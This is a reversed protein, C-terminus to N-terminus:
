TTAPAQEPAQEPAREPARKPAQKLEREVEQLLQFLRPEMGYETGDGIAGDGDDGGDLATAIEDVSELNLKRLINLPPSGKIQSAQLMVGSCLLSEALSRYEDYSKNPLTSLGELLGELLGNIRSEDLKKVLEDLRTAVPIVFDPHQVTRSLKQLSIKVFWTLVSRYKSFCALCSKLDNIAETPSVEGDQEFRNSFSQLTRVIKMANTAKKHISEIPQLLKLGVRYSPAFNFSRPLQRIVNKRKMANERMLFAHNMYLLFAHADELLDVFEREIDKVPQSNREDVVSVDVIGHMATEFQDSWNPTSDVDFYQIFESHLAVKTDDTPVPPFGASPTGHVEENRITRYVTSELRRQYESAARFSLELMSAIDNAVYEYKCGFKSFVDKNWGRVPLRVCREAETSLCWESHLVVVTRRPDDESLALRDLMLRDFKDERSMSHQILFFKDVSEALDVLGGRSFRITAELSQENINFSRTQFTKKFVKLPVKVRCVLRGHGNPSPTITPEARMGRMTTSMRDDSALYNFARYPHEAVFNKFAAYPDGEVDGSDAARQLEVVGTLFVDDLCAIASLASVGWVDGAEFAGLLNDVRINARLASSERAEMTQIMKIYKEVIPKQFNQQIKAALQNCAKLFANQSWRSEPSDDLVFFIAFQFASRIGEVDRKAIKIAVDQLYDVADEKYGGVASVRIGDNRWGMCSYVLLALVKRYYTADARSSQLFDIKYGQVPSETLKRIPSLYKFDELGVRLSEAVSEAQTSEAVAEIFERPDRKSYGARQVRDLTAKFSNSLTDFTQVREVYSYIADQDQM